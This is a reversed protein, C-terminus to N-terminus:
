IKEFQSLVFDRARPVDELTLHEITLFIERRLQALLRLFLPYDLAGKGAAPLDTGNESPNVDKAHAIVIESGVRRFMEELVADMKPLDEKRFYNTPDMVIKLAPSNVERILREAREASCIINRWYAEISVIAGTKEALRALKAVADRCAIFAPETFNEPSEAWESNRNLTGTETSVIPCGFRKWNNILFEMRAEGHRRREPDPDVVNYYAFLAAIKLGHKDFASRIKKLADWDPAFPNFQVDAFAYELIVGRFGDERMKRAAEELPFRSYVGSFIALQLNKKALARLDNKAFAFTSPALAALSMLALWRRRSISARNTTM